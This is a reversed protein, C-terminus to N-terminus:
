DPSLWLMHGCSRAIVRCQCWKAVVEDRWCWKAIQTQIIQTLSHWRDSSNQLQMYLLSPIDPPLFTSAKIAKKSSHWSRLLRGSVQPGGEFGSMGARSEVFGCSGVMNWVEVLSSEFSWIVIHDIELQRETSKWAHFKSEGEWKRGFLYLSMETKKFSTCLHFLM